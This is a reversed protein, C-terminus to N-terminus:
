LGYRGKTANYNQLIETASLARNYLKIQMMNGQFYISQSAEPDDGIQLNASSNKSFSSLSTGLTSEIIGNVFINIYSSGSFVASVNYTQNLVASTNSQIGTVIGASAFGFFNFKNSFTNDLIELGWGISNSYTSLIAQKKNTIGVKFTSEITLASFSNSINNGLNIFDNTGDFIFSGANLSTFGVGNVLTGGFGSILGNVTIGSGSYSRTNGADIQFVLGDTVEIPGVDIGM